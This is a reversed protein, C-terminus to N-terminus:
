KLYLILFIGNSLSIKINIFAMTLALDMMRISVNFRFMKSRKVLMLLPFIFWIIPSPISQSSDNDLFILINAQKITYRCMHDNLIFLKERTQCQM